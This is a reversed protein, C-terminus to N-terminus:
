VLGFLSLIATTIGGLLIMSGLGMLLGLLVVKGDREAMGMAIVFISIALPINTGPVPLAIGVALTFIVVGLLRKVAPHLVWSWRPKVVKEARELIPLIAHIAGALAKRHITRKLIYNPLRLKGDGVVMQASIAAVPIVVVASIGPIPIPLVEPLSFVMLSTGVASTGGLGDIIQQVSFTQGPHNVLLQRLLQSTHVHSEEVKPAPKASKTGAPSPDPAQKPLAPTPKKLAPAPAAAKSAPLKTKVAPVAKSKATKAVAPTSAAVSKTIRRKKVPPAEFIANM